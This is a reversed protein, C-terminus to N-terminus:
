TYREYLGEGRTIEEGLYPLVRLWEQEAKMASDAQTVRSNRPAFNFAVM